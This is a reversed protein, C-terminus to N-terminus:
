QPWRLTTAVAFYMEKRMRAEFPTKAIQTGTKQRTQMMLPASDKHGFM